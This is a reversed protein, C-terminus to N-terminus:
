GIKVGDSEDHLRTIAAEIKRALARNDQKLADDVIGSALEILGNGFRDLQDRQRQPSAFWAKWAAEERKHQELAERLQRYKGSEYLAALEALTHTVVPPEGTSSNSPEGDSM